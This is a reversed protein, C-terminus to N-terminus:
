VVSKRDASDPHASGAPAIAGAGVLGVPLILNGNPAVLLPHDLTSNSAGQSRYGAPSHRLLSDVLTWTTGFDTSKSIQYDIRTKSDYAWLTSRGADWTIEPDNTAALITGVPITTETFTGAGPSADIAFFNPTHYMMVAIGAADGSSIVDIGGFGTAGVSKARPYGQTLSAGATNYYTYKQARRNNPATQALDREHWTMHIHAGNNYQAISRSWGNNWGYDYDGTGVTVGAAPDATAKFTIPSSKAAQNSPIVVDTSFVESTVPLQMKREKKTGAFGIASVCFLAAVFITLFKKFM